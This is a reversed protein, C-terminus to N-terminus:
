APQIPRAADQEAPLLSLFIQLILGLKSPDGDGHFKGDRVECFAWDHEGNDHRYSEMTVFELNTGELDISVSWGPNDLTDISIGHQHEWEGDCQGVYWEQIGKLVDVKM